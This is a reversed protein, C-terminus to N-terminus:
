KNTTHICHYVDKKKKILRRGGPVVRVALRTGLVVSQRDPRDRERHPLRCRAPVPPHDDRSVAGKGSLRAVRVAPSPAGICGAKRAGSAGSAFARARSSIPLACTQLGTVLAGATKQVRTALSCFM